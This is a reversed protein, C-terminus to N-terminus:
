VVKYYLLTTYRTHFHIENDGKTHFHIENDGLKMCMCTLDGDKPPLSGRKSGMERRFLWRGGLLPFRGRKPGRWRGIIKEKCLLFQISNGIFFCQYTLLIDVFYLFTWLTYFYLTKANYLSNYAMWFLSYRMMKLIEAPIQVNNSTILPRLITERLIERKELICLPLDGEKSSRWSSM